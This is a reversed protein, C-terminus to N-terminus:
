EIVLKSYMSDYKILFLLILGSITICLIFIYFLGIFDPPANDLLVLRFNNIINAMPNLLFLWRHEVLLVEKYSYFIGSGFMLLQLGTVVLYKFDPLIPVIAAVFLSISVIFSLQVIIVLIIYLWNGSPKVGISVLFVLLMALVVTQKVLDQGIVVIPFFAKNIKVQSILGKGQSISNCSNSVSKSFWLFPINGCVLFAVFGDGGRSLLVGFVLFMVSVFFIPELVWWIYSLYSKSAEAKLNLSVKMLVLQFFAYLNVM